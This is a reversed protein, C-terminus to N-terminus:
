NSEKKSYYKFIFIGFLLVFILDIFAAIMAMQSVKEHSYQFLVNSAFFLKGLLGMIVIGIHKVPKLAVMFFGIGFVLVTIWLSRFFYLTIWDEIIQGTFDLLVLKPNFIGPLVGGATYLGSILFTIKWFRSNLIATYNSNNALRNSNSTHQMKMYEQKLNIHYLAVVM